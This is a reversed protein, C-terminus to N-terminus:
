HTPRGILGHTHDVPWSDAPYRRFQVHGDMYLVNAGGPIHNFRDPHGAAVGAVIESGGLADYMVPIESQAMASGAPNNIDTIMFREVGERLRLIKDGVIDNVSPKRDAPVSGSAINPDFLEDISCPLAAHGSQVIQPWPQGLIGEGFDLPIDQNIRPWASWGWQGPHPYAIGYCRYAVATAENPIAWPLYHYSIYTSSDGFRGPDLVYGDGLNSCFRFPSSSCDFSALQEGATASSPCAYIGPDSWYEPYLAEGDPFSRRHAGPSELGARTAMNQQVTLPPYQEGSSEGAYMKFILGWQKLNNACSARRAAERARALAPLLIAALIGIIAIVVLLEILTFGRKRNNM